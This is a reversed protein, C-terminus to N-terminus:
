LSSTNEHQPTINM